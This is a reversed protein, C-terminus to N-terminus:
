IGDTPPHLVQVKGKLRESIWVKNNKDVIVAGVDPQAEVLPLGKEPGLIFVADDIADATFADGAWVTVSRCATAPYGTRPDIIHHYRKGGLIFARAYDGATSFAHNTLEIIAFYVGQDARPDQIGSVWPSGDPKTGAGYLDGGAQALFSTLGAAKLVGAARDVAYGKAIGGLDIRMGKAITVTHAAADTKVKRYDVLKKRERVTKADPLKPNAEAADGFKWLDGLAHFTIDFVGGSLDAAWRSKELVAITEDSVSVETGAGVNVRGIDSTDRWSTMVSEVRVIEAHARAMASRIAGEDLLPTTYAVFHVETGMAPLILDVKRPSFPEANAAPTSPEPAASARSVPAAPKASASAAAASAPAEVARDDHRCGSGLQLPLLVFALARRM